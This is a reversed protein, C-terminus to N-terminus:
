DLQITNVEGKFGKIPLKTQSAIIFIANPYLEIAEQVLDEVKTSYEDLFVIEIMKNYTFKTPVDSSFDHYM